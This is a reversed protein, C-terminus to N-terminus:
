KVNTLQRWRVGWMVNQLNMMKKKKSGINGKKWREKVGCGRVPSEELVHIHVSMDSCVNCIRILSSRYSCNSWPRCQKANLWHDECVRNIHTPLCISKTTYTIELWCDECLGNVPLCISKITYTIKLRLDECVDNVPLCIFKATCTVCIM